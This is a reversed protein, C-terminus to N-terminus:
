LKNVFLFLVSGKPGSDEVSISLKPICLLASRMQYIRRRVDTQTERSYCM